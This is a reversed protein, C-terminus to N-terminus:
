LIEDIVLQPSIKGRFNNKNISCIFSIHDGYQVVKEYNFDISEVVNNKAVIIKQHNQDQGLFRHGKVYANEVIFKPKPNEQGYPEFSELINLLEFDISDIDIKGLIDKKEEFNKSDESNLSNQMAIKFSNLNEEKLSMGAAGKHGGFGLLYNSNKAIHELIDVEGVSRASGKAIKDCISFVIAPKKYKRCLRAAVIGIVGEHWNEGWVIIINQKEDVKKVAENLIQNEIEKRKNNLSIIYEVKSVATAFDKARIMEYALFGDEIRGASNILPALLYSIDESNFSDKNFLTKIAKFFNRKSNNIYKLGSKVIARNIDRLPMMDAVIAISLIDLFKALNYELRLAEKLSAILYWAVTAGCIDSNPFDCDVQKPDIIAYAKPLSSPVTHHDTIILDIGREECVKGAEVASIGNDVTIIVKADIKEIIKPSIGYGDIFRNPIILEYDIGIDDFFESVIVSSIVGDADYDGVIAIKERQKIAEVIRKTAKKMDKFSSPHPIDALKKCKNDVFRMELLNKIDEKTLLNDM